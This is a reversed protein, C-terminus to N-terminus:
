EHLNSEASRGIKMSKSVEAASRGTADRATQAAGRNRREDTFIEVPAVFDGEVREARFKETLTRIRPFVQADNSARKASTMKGCGVVARLDLEKAARDPGIRRREHM